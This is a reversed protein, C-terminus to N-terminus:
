RKGAFGRIIDTEPNEIIKLVEIFQQFKRWNCLKDLLEGKDDLVDIAEKRTLKRQKRYDDFEEVWDELREVEIRSM